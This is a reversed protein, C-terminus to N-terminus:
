FGRRYYGIKASWYIAARDARPKGSSGVRHILCRAVVPFQREAPNIQADHSAQYEIFQLGLGVFNGALFLDLLYIIGLVSFLNLYECLVFWLGYLKHRRSNLNAGFYEAIERCYARGDEDLNLQLRGAGEPVLTRMLNGEMYKWCFHPVRCLLALGLLVLSTWQYYNHNDQVM